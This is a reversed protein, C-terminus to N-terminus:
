SPRIFPRQPFGLLLIDGMIRSFTLGPVQRRRFAMYWSHMHRRITREGVLYTGRSLALLESSRTEGVKQNNLSSHKNTRLM